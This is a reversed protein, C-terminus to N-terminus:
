LFIHELHRIFAKKSTEDYLIALADFHYPMSQCKKERLYYAVIRELKHLKARTISSEPVLAGGERGLRTKVEVFVLEKGKKAVIDIEGLRRGSTNCYNTELITYGKDKLYRCGLSEGLSGSESQVFFTGM